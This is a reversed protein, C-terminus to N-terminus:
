YRRFFNRSDVFYQHVSNYGATKRNPYVRDWLSGIRYLEKNYDHYTCHLKTAPFKDIYDLSHVLLIDHRFNHFAQYHHMRQFDM